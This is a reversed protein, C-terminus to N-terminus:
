FRLITILPDWYPDVPVPERGFRVLSEARGLQERIANLPSQMPPMPPAVPVTDESLISDVLAHEEAYYHLSGSFHHYSGLRLNLEVAAAEQIMTLLFIDYPLVRAVSQSRMAAVAHLCGERVLFHLSGICSSDKSPRLLDSPLYIQIQARRSSQDRKLLEIAAHFQDGGEARFIRRGVAAPLHGTEDAFAFGQQNYYGIDSVEDSGVICWITQAIAFRLQPAYASTCIIRARPNTLEFSLGMVERYNRPKMGFGSGISLPDIVGPVERGGERVQALLSLWASQLTAFPM